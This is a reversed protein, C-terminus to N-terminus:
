IRYNGNRKQFSMECDFVISRKRDIQRPKNESLYTETKSHATHPVQCAITDRLLM